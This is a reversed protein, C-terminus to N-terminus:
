GHAGVESRRAIDGVPESQLESAAVAKMEEALPYSRMFLWYAVGSVFLGIVPAIDAGGLAEAAPGRYLANSFFPIMAVFGIIYAGMGRASWVGYIGGDPRLIDTISYYGKRVLYYDVLNVATWPILLYTLISLFASFNGLFDSSLSLSAAITLLGVIVLCITRLRATSRIPRFAEGISLADITTSYLTVSFVVALTLGGILLTVTGLHLGLQDGVAAVDAILDGGPNNVAIIAGLSEIWVASAITGIFVTSVVARTSTKRPLYRTYDSVIPAVAIQYSASAGFQALFGLGVFVSKAFLDGVPVHAFVAVTILILNALTFIALWRNVRHVMDYGIIAIVLGVGLIIWQFASSDVPTVQGLSTASLQLNFINFGAQVVLAATLAIVSGKSGFQVRSQIMQPLGMRPGQAAHFASFFTGFISGLVVALLTWSLGLGFSPGIAGTFLTVLTANIMFWFPIQKVASGHRASEPVYDFSHTEIVSHQTSESSM